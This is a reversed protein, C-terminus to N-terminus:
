LAPGGGTWGYEMLEVNEPGESSKGKVFGSIPVAPHAYGQVAIQTHKYVFAADVPTCGQLTAAATSVTKPEGASPAPVLMGWLPQLADLMDEQPEDPKFRYTFSPGDGRRRIIQRLSARADGLDKPQHEFSIRATTRVRPSLSVVSVTAGQPGNDEVQAEILTTEENATIAWVAFQGRAWPAPLPATSPGEMKAFGKEFRAMERKTRAYLETDVSRCGAAAVCLLLLPTLAPRM